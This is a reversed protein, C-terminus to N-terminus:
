PSVGQLQSTGANVPGAQVILQVPVGFYRALERAIRFMVPKGAEARKLTAISVRFRGDFCANAMEDQSQLRAARLTKLAYVNLCVRGRQTKSALFEPLPEMQSLGALTATSDITQARPRHFGGSAMDWREDDNKM